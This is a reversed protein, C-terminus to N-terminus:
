EHPLNTFQCEDRGDIAPIKSAGITKSAQLLLIVRQNRPDNKAATILPPPRDLDAGGPSRREDSWSLAPLGPAVRFRGSPLTLMRGAGLIPYSAACM